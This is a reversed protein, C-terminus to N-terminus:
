LSISFPSPSEFYGEEPIEPLLTSTRTEKWELKVNPPMCRRWQSLLTNRQLISDSALFDFWYRSKDQTWELKHLPSVKETIREMKKLFIQVSQSQHDNKLCQPYIRLFTTCDWPQQKWQLCLIDYHHQLKRTHYWQAGHVLGLGTLLVLHVWAFKRLVQEVGHLFFLKKKTYLQQYRSEFALVMRDLAHYGQDVMPIAQQDLWRELRTGYFFQAQPLFHQLAHDEAECEAFCLCAMNQIRFVEEVHRVTEQILYVVSEQPMPSLLRLFKLVAGQYVAVICPSDTRQLIMCQFQDETVAFYTKVSRVLELAYSHYLMTGLQSCLKEEIWAPLTSQATKLFWIWSRRVSITCIWHDGECRSQRSKERLWQLREFWRLEGPVKEWKFQTTSSLDLLHLTSKWSGLNRLIVPLDAVIHVGHFCWRGARLLYVLVQRSEILCVIKDM